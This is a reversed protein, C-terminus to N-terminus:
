LEIFKTEQELLQEGFMIKETVIDLIAKPDLDPVERELMPHSEKVAPKFSEFLAAQVQYYNFLAAM